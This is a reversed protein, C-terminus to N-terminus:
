TVPKYHSDDQGIQWCSSHFQKLHMSKSKTKKGFKGYFYQFVFRNRPSKFDLDLKPRM